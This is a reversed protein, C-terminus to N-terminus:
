LFTWGSHLLKAGKNLVHAQLHTQSLLERTESPNGAWQHAGSMVNEDRQELENNDPTEAGGKGSEM